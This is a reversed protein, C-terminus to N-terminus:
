KLGTFKFTRSCYPCVVGVPQGQENDVMTLYVRPHRDHEPGDCMVRKDKTPIVDKKDTFDIPESM